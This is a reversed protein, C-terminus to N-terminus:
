GEHTVEQGEKPALMAEECRVRIAALDSPPTM